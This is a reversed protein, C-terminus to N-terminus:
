ITKLFIKILTGENSSSLQFEGEIEEIRKQMNQLGNGKQITAEDFGIGNDQIIIKIQNDVTKANISIITANAYKFANNVAEQITRYINMGEVSTLKQMKITEDIAFSFSINEKSEKAKEIYNNIRIELDEFTIENSNMAWITDRLEVITEKAFSSITSLKNDLKQNTIDFAYKINDVSSIIFTLQAGINDHLDRSIGLRQEQLENQKEILSIASKLEFEQEQQQNKQKQQRYILWGIVAILFSLLSVGLIIANKQKAEAQQKLLLKEKKETQYKTELEFVTKTKEDAFLSDKGIAYLSSFQYAQSYNKLRANAKSLNKYAQVILLNADSKKAFNLAQNSQTISEQYKEQKILCLAYANSCESVEFSNEFKKHLEIAQTYNINAMKFQHLSDLVFAINSIPYAIFREYGLKEYGKKALESCKLSLSYQKLNILISGLNCASTTQGFADTTKSYQDFSKQYYKLAKSYEKQAKYVIGINTNVMAQKAFDNILEYYYLAKFYSALALPFQGKTDFIIGLNNYSDAIGTYDKTDLRIRLAKKHYFLASDLITKYQFINAISNYSLSIYNEKKLSKALLLSKKAYLMAQNLDSNSYEDALLTLTRYRQNDDGKKLNEKLSDIRFKADQGEVFFPFILIVLFLLGKNM